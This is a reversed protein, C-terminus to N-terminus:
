TKIGVQEWLLLVGIGEESSSSGSTKRVQVEESIELLMGRVSRRHRPGSRSAQRRARWTPRARQRWSGGALAETGM